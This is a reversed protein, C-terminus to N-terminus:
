NEYTKNSPSLISIIPPDTAPSTPIFDVKAVKIRTGAMISFLLTLAVTLILATRKMVANSFLM